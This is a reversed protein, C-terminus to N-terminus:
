SGRPGRTHGYLLLSVAEILGTVGTPKELFAEHEWLVGKERFLQDAFGTLYLVKVDPDARRLVAALEDGRMSPMMLDLVFLDYPRQQRAVFALATEGDAVALVDYGGERLMRETVRRVADDDDVVLIRPAADTVNMGRPTHAFTLAIDTM